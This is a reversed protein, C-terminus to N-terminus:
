NTKKETPDTEPTSSPEEDMMVSTDIRNPDVPYLHRQYLYILFVIDDRFCAVRHATPMTIIFAFLDDIFTNFAKYMFARWPLHAVSKLKYNLFLQPLMFLFGFAYVGNVTTQVTWSYWSKHPTYLLSYVAGGLCLPYLVWSLYKMATDDLQATNAEDKTDQGYTIGGRLSVKIHLAKTVKWIEILAGVGAPILVLLSTEEDMLYLFIVSQSFARWLITKRSLGEMTKKGRWFNVDNKFALFDFLLHVASVGFTVLLLVLNTDAFIGKVEDTDKETFGMAHMSSLAAYFQLFLRLKGFSIPRYVLEIDSSTDTANVMRLDKMRMTLEDVYLIPLYSKRDGTLTIVRALEPPVQHMSMTVQDTMVTLIVKSRLHTVPRSRDVSKAKKATKEDAAAEPTEGGLLNFTEAEPISYETLRTLSYSTRPGSIADRWWEEKSKDVATSVKPVAFVALYMTGNKVVSKPLKVSATDTIEDEVKIDFHKLFKLDSGMSPRSKTTTFFILSLESEATLSNSICHKDGEPCTPPIYLKVLSWMSNAMYALFVVSLITTLSPRQM